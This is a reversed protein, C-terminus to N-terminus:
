GDILNQENDSVTKGYSNLLQLRDLEKISQTFMIGLDRDNENYIRHRICSLLSRYKKMDEATIDLLNSRFSVLDANQTADGITRLGVQLVGLNFQEKSLLATMEDVEKTDLISAKRKLGRYAIIETETLGNITRVKKYSVKEEATLPWKTEDLYNASIDGINLVIVKAHLENFSELGGCMPVYGIKRASYDQLKAVEKESMTIGNHQKHHIATMDAEEKETL